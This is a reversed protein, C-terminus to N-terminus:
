YRLDRLQDKYAATLHLPIDAPEPETDPPVPQKEMLDNLTRRRRAQFLRAVRCRRIQGRTRPSM